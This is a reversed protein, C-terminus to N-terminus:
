QGGCDQPTEGGPLIGWLVPLPTNGEAPGPVVPCLATIPTLHAPWCTTACGRLRTHACGCAWSQMCPPCCLRGPTRVADM